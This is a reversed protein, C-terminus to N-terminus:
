DAVAVGSRIIEKIEDLFIRNWELMNGWRFAASNARVTARTEDPMNQYARDVGELQPNAEAFRRTEQAMMETVQAPREIFHGLENWDRDYFVFVPISKYEGQNLYDNILETKDRQFIRLEVEPVERELRAVVPLFHIVDTCWDEGIAAISVPNERFFQKDEETFLEGNAEINDQFKQKNAEMLDVFQDTTLGENFRERSIPM